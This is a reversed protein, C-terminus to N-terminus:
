KGRRRQRGFKNGNVNEEPENDDNMLKLAKNVAQRCIKEPVKEWYVEERKGSVLELTISSSGSPSSQQSIGVSDLGSTQVIPHTSFYQVFQQAHLPTSLRIHCSEMGKLYDLYDIGDNSKSKSPTESENKWAQMFLTRLTTKNTESHLHRVFVLCGSPYSSGAHISLLAPLAAETSSHCTKGQNREQLHEEMPGSNSRSPVAKEQRRIDRENEQFENMEEVLEQRFLLYEAKLGEWREKSITRFGFKVTDQLVQLRDADKQELKSSHTTSTSEWPWDNLLFNVDESTSLTVLAFGKCAPISNPRDRHHAPFSINQIKYFRTPLSSSLLTAIFKLTGLLSRYQPPINEAYVTLRDWDAKGFEGLDKKGIDRHAKVRVEYGTHTRSGSSWKRTAQSGFPLQESSLVLRVEILDTAYTRLAKVYITEPHHVFSTSSEALAFVRSHNLLYALPIYGEDTLEANEQGGGQNQSDSSWDRKRRLGADAWITYDSLSLWVLGALLELDARKSSPAASDASTSAPPNEFVRGPTTERFSEADKISRSVEQQVSVRADLIASPSVKETKELRRKKVARPIFNISM